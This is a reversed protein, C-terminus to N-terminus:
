ADAAGDNGPAPSRVGEIRELIRAQLLRRSRHRRAFTAVLSIAAVLLLTGLGASGPDIGMGRDLSARLVADADTSDAAGAPPVRNDPGVAAVAGPDGVLLLGAPDTVVFVVGAQQEPTGIANLADGPEVLALLGAAEGALVVHAVATGDDLDFGDAAVETVLGGVRVRQGVHAALRALDVDQVAADVDRLRGAVFPTSPGPSGAAGPAPRAERPGLVIDTADRPVIAFRRDVATPAPRRVIGAITALRGEVLATSAIGSGDLGSIPIRTSGLALEAQWRSGLRHLDVITGSVLVLRWEDAVGPLSRLTKPIPRTIGLVVVEEAHLRPAGYARGVLGTVRVRVGAHLGGGPAALYIEIAGTADEVITRRSSRDLLTVGITLVGDVTVREGERLSAAAISLVPMAVAASSAGPAIAPVVDAPARLWLRYGDLAGKRSARQGIIGTFTGAVGKRLAGADLGASGDALVRLTAGDLGTIDCSLDGSTAKSPATAIVGQITVLRGETGEGADHANMPRVSPLVTPGLVTFGGASARLETQGYPDALTGRVEVLTGRAPGPVGDQLRVVLGGTADGIALLPPTGLRGAEATVVGRVVTQRGVPVARAAAIDAAPPVPAPSPLPTPTPTPSPVPTPSSSGTPTPSETPSPSMTPSPSPAVLELEGPLTANLRYGALGTGGSDRQGLPGRAVVLSGTSPTMGRLVDPGVVIRVAGTGDDVMLGLGDSLATAPETVRGGVELRRGEVPERADGSAVRLVAPLESTGIVVVEPSKVRLTRQAYRDDVVGQARVRTGAVMPVALASDLYLAIGASDDQVFGTRGSELSGLATTLTGEIVVTTGDVFGRALGISTAVPATATPVPTSAPTASPTPSPPASPTLTPSPASTPPPTPSPIPNPSPPPTPSESALPSPVASPPPTPGPVPTPGSALNQAVPAANAAFDAANDNTDMANGSAGGPRREISSGAPPAAVASTEVFGNAADGWGVADIPAGGIARIVIAGGTAALGGSYMADALPAYAGSANALLLHRGPELLLTATWSAKRTVTAGSSTAYVVELGALDVASTSANTLEVFEDSASAGGTLVEGVLAGTSPPWGVAALPAGVTETPVSALGTSPTASCVLTFVLAAQAALRVHAM